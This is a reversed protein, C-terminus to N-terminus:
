SVDAVAEKLTELGKSAHEYPEPEFDFVEISAYGEYGIDLLAKM